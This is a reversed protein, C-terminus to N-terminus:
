ICIEDVTAGTCHCLLYEIADAVDNPAIMPVGELDPCVEKIM